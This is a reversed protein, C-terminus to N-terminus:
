VCRHSCGTDTVSEGLANVLDRAKVLIDEDESFSLGNVIVTLDPDSLPDSQPRIIGTQDMATNPDIHAHSQEVKEVRSCLSQVSTVLTDIRGSERQIDMSLEDRLARVKTDINAILDTRLRDIKRELTKGLQEQNRKIDCVASLVKDMKDSLDSDLNPANSAMNIHSEPSPGRLPEPFPTDRDSDRVVRATSVTPTEPDFVPNVIDEHINTNDSDGSHYLVSTTESLLESLSLTDSM